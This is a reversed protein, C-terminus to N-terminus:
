VEADGDEDIAAESVFTAVAEAPLVRHAVPVSSPAAVPLGPLPALAVGASEAEVAEVEVGVADDAAVKLTVGNDAGLTRPM